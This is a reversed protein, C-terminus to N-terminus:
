TRAVRQDLVERMKEGLVLATYPKQVFVVEEDLVGHQVIADPTYGSMFLAGTGPRRARVEEWLDRGNMEPMVVDTLLLHIEGDYEDVIRIAERPSTTALVKYGLRELLRRGLSLLAEEDEVLLITESGVPPGTRRTGAAEAEGADVTYRPLYMRFTTGQGPESYVHIAGGNQKVIGYVTALGLGTGMDHEKTTFFPEFIQGLMDRDMGHGTDSVALMVHDGPTLDDPHTECYVGDIEVNATAITVTGVDTIADRANLMLNALVQDIQTPDMKVKWLERGPKWILEIQEGILRGLMKLMSAVTDNLDLVEPSVAQQRAFALLQRTLDASRAAAAHVEVLEHRVPDNQALRELALESYGLIVGLMNNFDHAVGGALRGVAEMKQAQLLQIQLREHETEARKRGTIDRIVSVVGQRGDYEDYLVNVTNDTDIVAGDKRRMQFEM